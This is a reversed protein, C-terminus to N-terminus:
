MECNFNYLISNQFDVNIENFFILSYRLDSFFHKNSLNMKIM